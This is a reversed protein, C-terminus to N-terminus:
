DELEEYGLMNCTDYMASQFVDDFHEGILNALENLDEQTLGDSKFGAEEVDDGDVWMCPVPYVGEVSKVEDTEPIAETIRIIDEVPLDNFDRDSYHIEAYLTTTHGNINIEQVKSGDSLLPYDEKETFDYYGGHAELAKKLESIAHNHIERLENAFTTHKM